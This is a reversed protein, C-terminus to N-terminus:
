RRSLSIFYLLNLIAVAASAVYTLAAATLVSKVGSSEKRTVLGYENILALARGSANFEVPLTVLTFCVAACFFIIGINILNMYHIFIGIIILWPALTSGLSAIPFLRQRFNFFAYNERSQVAHGTEHAAIGIAAISDSDYVDKSLAIVSRAPDFNDTLTGDTKIVEVDTIGKNKLILEAVERGTLGSSNQIKKYKNYALQVWIHPFFTIALVVLMIILMYVM